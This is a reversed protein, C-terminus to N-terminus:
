TSSVCCSVLTHSSLLTPTMGDLNQSCGVVSAALIGCGLGPRTREESAKLGLPTFAGLQQQDTPAEAGM